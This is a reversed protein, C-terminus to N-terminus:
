HACLSRNVCAVRQGCDRRAMTLLLHVQLHGVRPGTAVRLASAASEAQHQTKHWGESCARWAPRHTLLRRPSDSATARVYTVAPLPALPETPLDDAKTRNCRKCALVLNSIENSGGKSVPIYHDRTAVTQPDCDPACAPCHTLCGCYYCQWSWARGFAHLGCHGLIHRLHLAIEVEM